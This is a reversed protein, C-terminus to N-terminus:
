DRLSLHAILPNFISSLDALGRLNEVVLRFFDSEITRCPIDLTGQIYCNLNRLLAGGDSLLIELPQNQEWSNQTVSAIRIFDLVDEFYPRLKQFGEVLEQEKRYIPLLILENQKLGILDLESDPWKSRVLHDLMRSSLTSSSELKKIQGQSILIASTSSFTLAILLLPKQPNARSYRRLVEITSTLSSGLFSAELGHRELMQNFRQGIAPEMTTELNKSPAVGENELRLAYNFFRAPLLCELPGSGLKWKKKLYPLDSELSEWYNEPRSSPLYDSCIIELQNNKDKRIELLKRHSHGLDILKLTM